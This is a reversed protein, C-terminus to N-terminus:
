KNKIERFEGVGIDVLSQSKRPIHNLWISNITQKSLIRRSDDYVKEVINKMPFSCSSSGVCSVGDACERRPPRLVLLNELRMVEECEWDYLARRWRLDWYWIDNAM